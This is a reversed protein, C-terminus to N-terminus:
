IVPSIQVAIKLPQGLFPLIVDIRCQDIQIEKLLDIIFISM